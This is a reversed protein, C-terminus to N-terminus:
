EVAAPTVQTGEQKPDKSSQGNCAEDRAHAERLRRQSEQMAKQADM